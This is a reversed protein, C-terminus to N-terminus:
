RKFKKELLSKYIHLTSVHLFNISSQRGYLENSEILKNWIRNMPFVKEDLGSFAEPKIIQVGTYVYCM